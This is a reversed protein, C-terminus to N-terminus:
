FPVTDSLSLITYTSCTSISPRFITRTRPKPDQTMYVEDSEDDTLLLAIPTFLPMWSQVIPDPHSSKSTILFGTTYRRASIIQLYIM